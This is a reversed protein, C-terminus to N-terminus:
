PTRYEAIRQLLLTRQAAFDSKMQATVGRVFTEAGARTAAEPHKVLLESAAARVDDRALLTLIDDESAQLVDAFHAESVQAIVEALVDVYHAYVVADAFLRHELLGEACYLLGHPDEIAFRGSHHCPSFLDDPDWGLASFFPEAKGDPAVSSTAYFFVEDVYDGNGLLTMLAVWRLFLDLDMRAHAEALLAQGSLGELSSLLADYDALAGAEDDRAYDLEPLKGDIDTRRRIVSELPEGLARGLVDSPEGLMLYPGLSQGDARLEVLKFAFPFLGLERSLRDATTQNLYGEDLCMSVLFFEDASLGAFFPRPQGGDLDVSFSKRACDVSSQGRLHARAPVSSLGEQWRVSLAFDTKDRASVRQEFVAREAASFAFDVVQLEPPAEHLQESDCSDRNLEPALKPLAFTREAGAVRVLVDGAGCMGVGYYGREFARSVEDSLARASPLIARAPM